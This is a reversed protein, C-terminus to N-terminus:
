LDVISCSLVTGNANVTMSLSLYPFPKCHWSDATNGCSASSWIPSQQCHKVDDEEEALLTDTRRVVGFRRWSDMRGVDGTRVVVGTDLGSITM